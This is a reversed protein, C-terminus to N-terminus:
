SWGPGVSCRLLGRCPKRAIPPSWQELPACRAHPLEVPGWLAVLLGWLGRGLGERRTRVGEWFLGVGKTRAKEFGLDSILYCNPANAM